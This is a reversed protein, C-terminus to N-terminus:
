IKTRELDADVRYGRSLSMQSIFALCQYHIMVEQQSVQMKETLVLRKTM